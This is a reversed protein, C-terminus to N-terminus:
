IEFRALFKALAGFRFCNPLFGPLAYNNFFLYKQFTAPSKNINWKNIIANQNKGSIRNLKTLLTHKRPKKAKSGLHKVNISIGLLHRSTM